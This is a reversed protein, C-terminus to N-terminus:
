IQTKKGKRFFQNCLIFNPFIPFNIQFSHKKKKLFFPVLNLREINTL